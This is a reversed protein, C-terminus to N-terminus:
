INLRCFNLWLKGEWKRAFGFDDSDFMGFFDTNEVIYKFGYKKQQVEKEPDLSFSLGTNRSQPGKSKVFM